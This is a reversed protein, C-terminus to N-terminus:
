RAAATARLSDSLYKWLRQDPLVALGGDLVERASAPQGRALLLEVLRTRALFSHQPSWTVADRLWTMATATDGMQLALASANTAVDVDGPFLEAATRYERLAGIRDGDYYLALEGALVHARYSLPQQALQAQVFTRPNRWNSSVRVTVALALTMACLAAASLALRPRSEIRKSIEHFAAGVLIAWGACPLYLNRGSLVVGSAFILNATPLATAASIWLATSATSPRRFHLLLVIGIAAAVLAGIVIFGYQPHLVRELGPSADMPPAVPLSLAALASPLNELAIQLRVVAGFPRFVPHPLDGGFTGLVVFRQLLLALVGFTSAGGWQFAYRRQRDVAWATAFVIAPAVVGVEKSALAAASALAVALRAPADPARQRTAVLLAVLLAVGCLIESRGVATAVAEAHVPAVAFFVGALIAPLAPLFRYALLLALVAAVGHLMTNEIHVWRAPSPSVAVDFGLSALALPRYLHRASYWWPSRLVDLWRIPARLLPNGLIITVDDYVFENAWASIHAVVALMWVALAAAAVSPLALHHGAARDRVPEASAVSM